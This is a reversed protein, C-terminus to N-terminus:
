HVEFQHMGCDKLYTCPKTAEFVVVGLHAHLGRM